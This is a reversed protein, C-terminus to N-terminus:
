WLRRAGDRGGGGRVTAPAFEDVSTRVVPVKRAPEQAVVQLFERVRASGDWKLEFAFGAGAAPPSGLTALMPAVPV